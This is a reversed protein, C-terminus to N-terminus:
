WQQLFAHAGALDRAWLYEPLSLAEIRLRDALMDYDVGRLRVDPAVLLKRLTAYDIDAMMSDDFLTKDRRDLVVDPVRGRLLTRVLAKHQPTPFKVDAPLSLFLEWLDVDAFPRRTVVGAVQQCVEEAESSLGPGEFAALQVKRWRDRARVMSRAASDNVRRHDLWEPIHARRARVRRRAIAVPLFPSAVSRAIRGWSAGSHHRARIQSGFAGFRRTLLLHPLLFQPLDFVYEAIEGTLLTTAGLARVVGYDEAYQPLSVTPVPGDLLRVWRELDDLPRARQEYAHLPMGLHDAVARTYQYEDVAPQDPYVVTLAPLPSGTLREHSRTAYAAVAPSDVGGSLSIITAPTTVRDAAQQMLADFREQLEGPAPRASELLDRPDWYASTRESGPELTLVASKRLRRVGRRASPTDDDYSQFFIQEVVDVDAEERLGAGVVIQRAESAAFARSRETRHFLPGFGLHDRFCTLELGDTVVAAYAGRLLAPTRDGACEHVLLLLEAPTCAELHARAPAVTRAVDLLNDVVGAVAAARRGDTAVWADAPRAAVPEQSAVGLCAAGVQALEVRTGRHPSAALMDRVVGPRPVAATDIVAAIAGM